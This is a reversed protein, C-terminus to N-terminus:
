KKLLENKNVDNIAKKADNFKNIDITWAMINSNWRFGAHKLTDKHKFTETGRAKKDGLDSQVVLLNKEAWKQLVLNELLRYKMYDGIIIKNDKSVFINSPKIDRHCYGSSHLYDIGKLIHKLIDRKTM